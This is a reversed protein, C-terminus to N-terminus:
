AAPQPRFRRIAWAAAHGILLALVVSGAITTSMTKLVTWRSATDVLAPAITAPSSRLMATVAFNELYDFLAVPLAILAIVWRWIGLRKPLLASIAFFLTLALLGPYFLDLLHQPGLYFAIGQPSIAILFVRAEAWSYGGPRMDFPVFGKAAAAITPLSWSLMVAYIGMTVAFLIWFAIRKM